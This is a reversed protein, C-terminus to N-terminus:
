LNRAQFTYCLGAVNPHDLSRLLEVEACVNAVARKELCVQKNVYKMALVRRDSKCEVL